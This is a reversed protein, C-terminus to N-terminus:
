DSGSGCAPDKVFRPNEPTGINIQRCPGGFRIPRVTRAPAAGAGATAATAGTTATTPVCAASSLALSAAAALIMLRHLM